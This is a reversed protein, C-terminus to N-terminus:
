RNWGAVEARIKVLRIVLATAVAFPAVIESILLRESVISLDNLAWVVGFVGISLYLYDTEKDLQNGPSANAM